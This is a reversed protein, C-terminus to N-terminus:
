RVTAPSSRESASGDVTDSGCTFIRVAEFVQEGSRKPDTILSQGILIHGKSFAGTIEVQQWNGAESITIYDNRKSGESTRCRDVIIEPDISMCLMLDYKSFESEPFVVEYETDHGTISLIRHPLKEDYYGNELAKGGFTSPYCYHEDVIVDNEEAIRDIEERVERVLEEKEALSMDKLRRGGLMGRIMDMPSLHKFHMGSAESRELFDDITYNKGSRSIGFLAVRTHKM